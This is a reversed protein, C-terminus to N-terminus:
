YLSGCNGFKLINFNGEEKLVDNCELYIRVFLDKQLISVHENLNFIISPRDEHNSLEIEMTLKIAFFHKITQNLVFLILFGTHETLTLRFKSVVQNVVICSYTVWLWGWLNDFLKRQFVVVVWKHLALHKLSSGLVEHGLEVSTGFMRVM